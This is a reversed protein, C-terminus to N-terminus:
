WRNQLHLAPCWHTLTHACYVPQPQPPRPASLCSARCPLQASGQLLVYMASKRDTSARMNMSIIHAEMGASVAVSLHAACGPRAEAQAAPEKSGPTEAGTRRRSQEGAPQPAGGAGPAARRQGSGRRGAVRSSSGSPQEMRGRKGGTQRGGGGAGERVATGVKGALGRENRGRGWRGRRERAAKKGAPRM